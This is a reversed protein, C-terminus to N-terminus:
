YHDDLVGKSIWGYWDMSVAKGAVFGPIVAMSNLTRQTVKELEGRPKRPPLALSFGDHSGSQDVTTSFMLILSSSPLNRSSLQSHIRNYIWIGQDVLQPAIYDAGYSQFHYGLNPIKLVDCESGNCQYLIRGFLLVAVPSGDVRAPTMRSQRLASETPKIFRKSFKGDSRCGASRIAGKKSVLYNCFLMVTLQEGQAIKTLDISEEFSSNQPEFYAPAFKDGSIAPSSLLLFVLRAAVGLSGQLRMGKSPVINEM